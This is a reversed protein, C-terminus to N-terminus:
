PCTIGSSIRTGFTGWRDEGEPATRGSFVSFAKAGAAALGHEYIGHKLGGVRLPESWDYGPRAVKRTYNIESPQSGELAELWTAHLVGAGGCASVALRPSRAIAGPIDDDLRVAEASWTRYPPFSYKYLIAEGGKGYVLHATGSPGIKIDPQSLVLSEDRRTSSYQDATGYLFSAGHDASRAVQLRYIFGSLYEEIGYSVFVDGKRGAALAFGHLIPPEGFGSGSAIEKEPNWSAGQDSSSSFLVHQEGHGETQYGVAYIEPGDPAVALNVDRFGAPSYYFNCYEKFVMKPSSWTAGQDTSVSFAIGSLDECGGDGSNGSYVYAAYLRGGTATYAIAPTTYCGVGPLQPLEVLPGWTKGGDRSRKVYCGRGLVVALQKPNAPNFAVSSSFAYGSGGSLLRVDPYDTPPGVTLAPSPASAAPTSGNGDLAAVAAASVFIGAAAIGIVGRIRCSMRPGGFLLAVTEWEVRRM